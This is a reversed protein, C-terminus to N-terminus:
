KFKKQLAPILRELFRDLERQHAMVMEMFKEYTIEGALGNAYNDVVSLNAYEMEMEIALTAESGMNMGVVDAFGSFFRVEAETEFRPGPTQIYVGGDMVSFGHEEGTRVVTERLEQNLDPTIHKIEDKFFTPIGTFQIFDEPVLFTGPTIEKKLSGVSTIGLIHSVGLSKMAMINAKHNIRHPPLPSELGHRSILKVGGDRSSFCQVTGFTTSVKKAEIGRLLSSHFLNTGGIIGVPCM